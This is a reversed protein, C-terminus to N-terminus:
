TTWGGARCAPSPRCCTPSTRTGNTWTRSWSPGTATAWNRSLEEPFPGSGVTWGDTARDHQILRALVGEECALGALDDPEIPSVYGPFAGRILLPRKQWHDRLFSRPAMGLPQGPKAHVEFPLATARKAM